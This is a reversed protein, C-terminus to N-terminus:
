AALMRRMLAAIDEIRYPKSMMAVGEPMRDRRPPDLNGTVLVVPLQPWRSRVLRALEMGDMTGPMAMDTLVLSPLPGGRLVELARDANEAERVHYGLDTLEEVVVARVAEDDEVALVVEGKGRAARALPAPAPVLTPVTRLRPLLIAVEAGRGPPSDITAVGGSQRAFGYVMALGLGTGKGPAKTTSFPEFAHDKIDAAMGPGTDAVAIRVYDGSQPSDPAGDSVHQVKGVSITITGKGTAEAIADRANTVLNLVASELQNQDALCRGADPEIQWQVTISEGIASQILDVLGHQGDDGRLVSVPDLPVSQLRQRRAFALLQQTLTAAKGCANTANEVFRRMRPVDLDGESDLRKRLLSLNGTVAQLVNNFDHAVGGTLQGIAEMKQSQRLLDEARARERAEAEYSLTRAAVRVELEETLRLASLHLNANDLAVAAQVSLVSALSERRDDFVGAATHGLLIGGMVGSLRSLVPLAMYSRIPPEDPPVGELCVSAGYVPDVTIDASRIVGRGSFTEALLPPIGPGMMGSFADRMAGAAARLIQEAGDPGTSKYFFAVVQAGTLEAAAAAVAQLITPVDREVTTQTGVRTLIDLSQAELRLAEMAMGREAAIREIAEPEPSGLCSGLFRAFRTRLLLQPPQDTM